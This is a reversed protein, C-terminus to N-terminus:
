VLVEVRDHSAKRQFAESLMPHFVPDCFRPSPFRTTEKTAADWSPPEFHSRGMANLEGTAFACHRGLAVQMGGPGYSTTPLSEDLM